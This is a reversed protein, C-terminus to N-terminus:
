NYVEDWNISEGASIPRSDTRMPRTIIRDYTVKKRGRNIVIPKPINPNRGGTRNISPVQKFKKTEM